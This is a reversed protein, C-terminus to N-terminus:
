ERDPVLSAPRLLHRPLLPRTSLLCSRASGRASRSRGRAPVARVARGDPERTGLGAVRRPRATDSRAQDVRGRPAAGCARRRRSRPCPSLAARAPALEGRPRPTQSRRSPLHPAPRGDRLPAERPSAPRAYWSPTANLSGLDHRLLRGEGGLRRWVFLPLGESPPDGHADSPVPLAPCHGRGVLDVM